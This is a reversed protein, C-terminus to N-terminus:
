LHHHLRLNELLLLHVLHYHHHLLHDLELIQFHFCEELLDMVLFYHLLHLEKEVLLQHLRLHLIQLFQLYELLHLDLLFHNLL